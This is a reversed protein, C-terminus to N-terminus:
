ASCRPRNARRRRRGGAAARAGARTCARRARRGRGRARAIRRGDTGLEHLGVATAVDGVVARALEDAVRDEGHGALPAAAHGVGDGVHQETSCSTCRRARGVQARAVDAPQGPERAHPDLGRLRTAGCSRRRRRSAAAAAPRHVAEGEVDIGVQRHEAVDHGHPMASLPTVDSRASPMSTERHALHDVGDRAPGGLAPAGAPVVPRRRRAGRARPGRRREAAALARAVGDDRARGTSATGHRAASRDPPVVSRRAAAERPRPSRAPEVDRGALRLPHPGLHPEGGLHSRRRRVIRSRSRTVTHSSAPQGFRESHQASPVAVKMILPSRQVRAHPKQRTSVRWGCAARGPRAPARPRPPRGAPDAAVGHDRRTARSSRASPPAAATRRSWGRSGPGCARRTPRPASGRSCPRRRRREVHDEVRPGVHQVVVELGHGPQLPGHARRGAVGPREGHQGPGLRGPERGLRASM